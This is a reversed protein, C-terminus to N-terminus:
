NDNSLGLEEQALATADFVESSEPVEIEPVIGFDFFDMRMDTTMSGDGEESPETKVFRMRRVLGDADIWAEIQLPAGEEEVYSALDEAGEERLREAQESVGVTGGYRTTPVGRVEGKGLKRVDGTAAGLLELEGKADGNAPLMTDLELGFSSFDLAMWEHGDPLSGFMSSRMYVVPGDGVLQMEVSDGSEPHQTTLFAESRDTEGNFVMEGTITFSREPSSVVARMTSRGGPEQQTREAAAAIANLPGGGDGDGGQQGAFVALALILISLGTIAQWLRRPRRRKSPESNPPGSTTTDQLTDPFTDTQYQDKRQSSAPTSAPASSIWATPAAWSASSIPSDRQM